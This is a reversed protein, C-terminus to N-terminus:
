RFCREFEEETTRIEGVRYKSFRSHGVQRLISM